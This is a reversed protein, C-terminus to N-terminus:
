IGPPYTTGCAPALPFAPRVLMSWRSIFEELRCGSHLGIVYADFHLIIAEVFKLPNVVIYEGVRSFPEQRGRAVAFPHKPISFHYIGNRFRVLKELITKLKKDEAQFVSALGVKMAHETTPFECGRQFQAITEFYSITLHLVAFGSRGLPNRDNDHSAEFIEALSKAIALNSRIHELFALVDASLENQNTDAM